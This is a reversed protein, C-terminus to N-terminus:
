AATQRAEDTLTAYRRATRDSVGVLYAAQKIHVGEGRLRQFIEARERAIRQHVRRAHAGRDITM